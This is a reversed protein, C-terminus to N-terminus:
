YEVAERLTLRQTIVTGVIVAVLIVAAAATGYGLRFAGGTGGFALIYIYVALTWVRQPPSRGFMAYVIAFTRLAAIVYLVLAVVIVDWLLPITIKLFMQWENAGDLRAAEFYTVPIKDFGALFIVVYYGVAHWVLTMLLSWLAYRPGLWIRQLFSLKLARLGMNILGWNYNFMFAFLIGV